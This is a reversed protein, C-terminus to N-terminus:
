IKESQLNIGSKWKGKFNGNEFIGNIFNGWFNGGKFIGYHWDGSYFDGSNWILTDNKIEIQANEIESDILWYFKKSKLISDIQNQSKISKEDIILEKYRM